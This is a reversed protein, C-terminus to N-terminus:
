ALGQALREALGVPADSSLSALRYLLLERVWPRSKSAHCLADAAAAHLQADSLRLYEHEAPSALWALLAPIMADDIVESAALRRALAGRLTPAWSALTLMQPATLHGNEGIAADLSALTDPTKELDCPAVSLWKAVVPLARLEILEGMVWRWRRDWNYGRSRDLLADLAAILAPCQEPLTWRALGNPMAREVTAENNWVLPLDDPAVSHLAVFATSGKRARVVLRETVRDAHKLASPGIATLATAAMPAWDPEQELCSLLTETAPAAATGLAALGEFATRRLEFDVLPVSIERRLHHLASSRHSADAVAASTLCQLALSRLPHAGVETVESLLEVHDGLAAGGYQALQLCSEALPSADTDGRVIEMLAPLADSLSDQHGAIAAVLSLRLEDSTERLLCQACVPVILGGCRGIGALWDLARLRVALSEDMVALHLVVPVAPWGESELKALSDIVEARRSVSEGLLQHALALASFSTSERDERSEAAM